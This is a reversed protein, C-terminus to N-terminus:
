DKLEAELKAAGEADPIYTAQRAHYARKDSHNLYPDHLREHEEIAFRDTM